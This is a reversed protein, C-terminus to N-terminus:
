EKPRTNGALPSEPSIVATKRLEKMLTDLQELPPTGEIKLGNIFMTPTSRVDLAMALKKDADIGPWPESTHRAICTQYDKPRFGSARSLAEFVKGDITTLEIANQNEFLFDHADWFLDAGLENACETLEAARRAWPHNLLPKQHFTIRIDASHEPLYTKNVMVFEQRCYPCEFDSFVDVRIPANPPGKQPRNSANSLMATIANRRSNEKEALDPKTDLVQMSLYRHDPSLFLTEQAGDIRKIVVARYCAGTAISISEPRVEAIRSDRSQLFTKIRQTEEASLPSCITQSQAVSAAAAVAWMTGLLTRSARHLMPIVQQHAIVRRLYYPRGM